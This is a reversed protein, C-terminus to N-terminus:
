EAEDTGIWECAETNPTMVMGPPPKIKFGFNQLATVLNHVYPSNLFDRFGQERALIEFVEPNEELRRIALLLEQSARGLERLRLEALKMRAREENM